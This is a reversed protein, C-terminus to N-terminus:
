WSIHVAWLDLSRSLSFIWFRLIMHASLKISVPYPFLKQSLQWTTNSILVITVLSIQRIRLQKGEDGQLPIRNRCVEPNETNLTFTKPHKWSIQLNTSFISSLFWTCWLFLVRNVPLSNTISNHEKQVNDNNQLLRASVNLFFVQYIWAYRM